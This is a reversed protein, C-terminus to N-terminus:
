GIKLYGVTPVFSYGQNIVLDTIVTSDSDKVEHFLKYHIPKKKKGRLVSNLYVLEIELFPIKYTLNNILRNTILKNFEVDGDNKSIRENEGEDLCKLQRETLENIIFEIERKSLARTEKVPLSPQNTTEKSFLRRIYTIM